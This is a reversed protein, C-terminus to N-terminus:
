AELAGSPKVIKSPKLGILKLVDDGRRIFRLGRRTLIRGSQPAFLSIDGSPDGPITVIVALLDGEAVEDGPSVHFLLMGGEPARIMEVHSLPTPAGQWLAGLTSNDDLIVGRHVLFRYLGEADSKGSQPYVDTLGRFEVTSIARRHLERAEPDLKLVPYVCAEEFAGDGDGSWTLVATSGLATVLDRMEEAMEEPIYVYNESEDDCHLDLVIDHPLALRLLAAKLRQSLAIPADIAPLVTTDFDDLLPFSRNFNVGSFADFRGLHQYANWQDSGIPNAQPVLTINGKIRGEAKARELMPVLYHLAVQGPLEAGHLSSQLYATPAQPDSGQFRLVRLQLTIGPVDGAFSIIETQM